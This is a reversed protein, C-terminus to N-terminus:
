CHGSRRGRGCHRSFIAVRNPPGIPTRLASADFRQGAPAPGALGNHDFSNMEYYGAWASAVRLAEFAPIRAALAPWRERPIMAGEISGPVVANVRVGHPALELALSRVLSMLGASRAPVAM